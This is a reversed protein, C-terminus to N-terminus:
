DRVGDYIVQPGAPSTWRRWLRWPLYPAWWPQARPVFPDAPQAIHAALYRADAYHIARRHVWVPQGPVQRPSEDILYITSDALHLPALDRHALLSLLSQEHRHRPSTAALVEERHALHLAERLIAAVAGNKRFGTFGSAIAARGSRFDPSLGCARSATESAEVDLTFGNPVFFYGQERIAHLVEELPRLVAIGADIWLINSAPADNWAWIKWTFHRRWHPCFPPVLRTEIKADRLAARTGDDLGIDYVVVPPHGPWNLNLSGLLALLAPGYAASAATVIQTDPSKM